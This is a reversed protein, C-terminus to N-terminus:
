PHRRFEIGGPDEPDFSGRLVFAPGVKRVDYSLGRKPENLIFMLKWRGKHSESPMLRWTGSADVTIARGQAIDLPLQVVSLTGDQRVEFRPKRKEDVRAGSQALYASASPDLKSMEWIGVIEDTAPRGDASPACGAVVAALSIIGLARM